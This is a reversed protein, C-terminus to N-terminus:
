SIELTECAKLGVFGCWGERGTVEKAQRMRVVIGGPLCTAAVSGGCCWSSRIGHWSGCFADRAGLVLAWIGGSQARGGAGGHQCPAARPAGGMEAPLHAGWRRM